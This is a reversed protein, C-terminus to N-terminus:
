IINYSTKHIHNCHNCFATVMPLHDHHGVRHCEADHAVAGFAAGHVTMSLPILPVHCHLFGILLLYIWKINFIFLRCILLLHDLILLDNM